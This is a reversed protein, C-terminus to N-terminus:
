LPGSGGAVPGGSSSPGSPAPSVPEAAEEAAEAELFENSAQVDTHTTDAATQDIVETMTGLDSASAADTEALAEAAAKLADANQQVAARVADTHQGILAAADKLRQLFELSAPEAGDGHVLEIIDGAPVLNQGETLKAHQSQAVGDDIAIRYGM